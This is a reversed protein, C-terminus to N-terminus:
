LMNVHKRLELFMLKRMSDMAAPSVSDSQKLEQRKQRKWTMSNFTSSSVFHKM